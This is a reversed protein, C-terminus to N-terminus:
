MYFLEDMFTPKDIVLPTSTSCRGLELDLLNTNCPYNEQMVHSGKKFSGVTYLSLRDKVDSETLVEFIAESLETGFILGKADSVELSHKLPDLRIHSNILAIVVGIKSLGLWICAYEPRNEMFLGVVDGKRYGQSFFYNAVQNGYSQVEQFTWEEGEFNICVKSPHKQVIGDFIDSVSHGKKEHFSLAKATKALRFIGRVDRPFTEIIIKIFKGYRFLVIATVIAVLGLIVFKYNFGRDVGLIVEDTTKEVTDNM